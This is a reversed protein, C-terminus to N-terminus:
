SAAKAIHFAASIDTVPTFAQKHGVLSPDCVTCCRWLREDHLYGRTYGHIYGYTVFSAFAFRQQKLVGSAPPSAADRDDGM